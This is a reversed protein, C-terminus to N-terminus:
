GSITFRNTNLNLSPYFDLSHMMQMLYIALIGYSILNQQEDGNRLGLDGFMAVNFTSTDDSSRATTFSYVKGFYSPNGVEDSQGGVRYYYRTNPKLNEITAHYTYLSYKADTYYVFTSASVNQALSENSRDFWVYADLLKNYTCWSVTM